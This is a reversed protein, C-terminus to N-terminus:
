APGELARATVAILTLDDTQEADGVFRSVATLVADLLAQSAVTHAAQQCTDLLREFGFLEERENMAEVVGDTYLLLRDGADLTYSSESYEIDALFGLPLAPLPKIYQAEGGRLLVPWLHGANGLTLRRAQPDIAAYLLSVFHGRPMDRYLWQNAKRLVTAPHEHDEIEVRIVGLSVAMILAAPLGKGSVDGIVAGLRDEGLPIFDYFDGGTERAPRCTAAIELGPVVPLRQPFFAQQIDRAISLEQEMRQKDENERVLQAITIASAVQDALTTLLNRDENAYSAGSLKPGLGLVGELAGQHVLPVLLQVQFATFPEQAPADLPRGQSLETVLDPPLAMTTTAPLDLGQAEALNFTGAHDNLLVLGHTVHMTERVQAVLQRLLESLDIITRASEAFRLLSRQYDYRERYFTRDILVQLQNRLPMFLAAILLTSGIVSLETTTGLLLQFLRQLLYVFLFYLGLLVVTLTFYLLSRRVLVDIEFLGHRIVAYSVAVPFITMCLAPLEPGASQTVAAASLLMWVTLPGFALISGAAVIGVPRRAHPGRALMFSVILALVCGLTFVGILLFSVRWTWAYNAPDDLAWEAVIAAILAPVYPLWALVPLRQILRWERPFVLALHMLAAGALPLAAVWLRTLEQGTVANFLLTLCLSTIVCVMVFARTPRADPRVSYVVAGVVLYFVGLIYPVFFLVVFNELSLQTVPLAVHIVQDDVRQVTYDAVQGQGVTRLIAEVDAPRRVPTGNVALLRDPNRLGTAASVQEGLSSVVLNPETFFGPFPEQRWRAALVFSAFAALGALVILSNFFVLAASIRPPRWRM